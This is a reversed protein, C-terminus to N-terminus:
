KLPPKSFMKIYDTNNLRNLGSVALLDALDWKRHSVIHYSTIRNLIIRYSVIRYSVILCHSVIHYSVHFYLIIHNPIPMKLSKQSYLWTFDILQSTM